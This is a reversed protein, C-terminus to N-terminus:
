SRPPPPPLRIALCLNDDLLYAVDMPELVTTLTLTKAIIQLHRLVMKYGIFYPFCVDNLQYIVKLKGGLRQLIHTPM